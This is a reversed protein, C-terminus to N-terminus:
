PLVWIRRDQHGFHYAAEEYSDTYLDIRNGKIAGGTDAAIAYGYGEVYVLRGLPVVQPDVAIVGPRVTIGTFTETTLGPENANYATATMELTRAFIVNRGDVEVRGAQETALLIRSVAAAAEARTAIAKPRFTGDGYGAAIADGVALAIAPEAWHAIESRDRFAGLRQGIESYSMEAAEWRRGLVRVIVTFLEQRTVAANPAFHQESQGDTIAMRYATEVYPAFWTSCPADAFVGQCEAGPDIRRAALAMKLLESRRVPDNPRFLGSPDASIVGSDVLRAVAAHAWHTKPLDQFVSSAPADSAAVPLSLGTILVAAAMFVSLIRKM